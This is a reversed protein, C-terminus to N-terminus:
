VEVGPQYWKRKELACDEGAGAQDPALASTALVLSPSLCGGDANGQRTLGLQPDSLDTRAMFCFIPHKKKGEEKGELWSIKEYISLKSDM